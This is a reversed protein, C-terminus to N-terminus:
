GGGGPGGTPSRLRGSPPPRPGTWLTSPRLARRAAAAYALAGAVIALAGAAQRYGFEVFGLVVNAVALTAIAINLWRKWVRHTTFAWWATAALVAVSLVTGVVLQLLQERSGVVVQVLGAVLLLLAALAAVAWLRPTARVGAGSTM